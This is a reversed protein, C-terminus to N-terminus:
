LSLLPINHKLSVTVIQEGTDIDFQKLGNEVTQVDAPFENIKITLDLKGVTPM